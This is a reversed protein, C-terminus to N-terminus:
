ISSWGAGATVASCDVRSWRFIGQIAQRKVGRQYSGEEQHVEPDIQRKGVEKM